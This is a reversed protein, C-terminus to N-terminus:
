VGEGRDPKHALATFNGPYSLRRALRAEVGPFKEGQYTDAEAEQNVVAKDIEDNLKRNM